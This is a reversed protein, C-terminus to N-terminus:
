QLKPGVLIAASDRSTCENSSIAAGEKAKNHFKGNVFISKEVITNGIGYCKADFEYACVVCLEEFELYKLFIQNGICNQYLYIRIPM